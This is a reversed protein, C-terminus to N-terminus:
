GVPSCKTYMLEERKRRTYLISPNTFKYNDISILPFDRHQFLIGFDKKKNMDTIKIKKNAPHPYLPPVHFPSLRLYM